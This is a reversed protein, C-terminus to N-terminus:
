MIRTKTPPIIIGSFIRAHEQAIEDKPASFSAIASKYLEVEGKSYPMFPAFGISMKGEGAQHYVLAVADKLTVTDQSGGVPIAVLEEGSILKYMVLTTM